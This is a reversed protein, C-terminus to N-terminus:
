LTFSKERVHWGGDTEFRFRGCALTGRKGDESVDLAVDHFRAHEPVYGGLAETEELGAAAEEIAIIATAFKAVKTDWMGERHPSCFLLSVAQRRIAPQRCKIAALYLPPIIGMELIFTPRSSSLVSVSKTKDELYRKVLSVMKEFETTFEDYVTERTSLCASLLISLAIYHIRLLMITRMEKQVLSQRLNTRFRNFAMSWSALRSQIEHQQEVATDEMTSPRCRDKLCYINNNAMHGRFRFTANTLTDLYQRAEVLSHFTGPVWLDDEVKNQKPVLFLRPSREGFMASQIDLRAFSEVLHEETSRLEAKLQWRHDEAPQCHRQSTSDCLIKLGNQLHTIAAKNRGQLLELCIFLVCSM